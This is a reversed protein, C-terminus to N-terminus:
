YSTELLLTVLIFFFFSRHRLKECMKDASAMAASNASKIRFYNLPWTCLRINKRSKEAASSSVFFGTEAKLLLLLLLLLFFFIFKGESSNM